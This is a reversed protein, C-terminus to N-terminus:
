IKGQRFCHNLFSIMTTETRNRSTLMIPKGIQIEGKVCKNVLSRLEIHEM